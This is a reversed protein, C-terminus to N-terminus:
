FTEMDLGLDEYQRQMFEQAPGENGVVSPIRVLEALTHIMDDRLGDVATEIKAKRKKEM